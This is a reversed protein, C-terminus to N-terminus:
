MVRIGGHRRRIQRDTWWLGLLVGGALCLLAAGAVWGFPLSHRYRAQRSVLAANAEELEAVRGAATDREERLRTAEQRMADLRAAPEAFAARLDALEAQLRDREAATQDVILRAPKDAVIFASKVYGTTGDPLQVRAYYGNRSLVEFEDGSRLTRFPADSTDQARHLGLSLIDTVYGTEAHAACTLCLALPVVLSKCLRVPM